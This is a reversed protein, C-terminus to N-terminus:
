PATGAEQNAQGQKSGYHDREILKTYLKALEKPYFDAVRLPQVRPALHVMAVCLRLIEDIRLPPGHDQECRSLMSQPVSAAGALERQSVGADKRWKALKKMKHDEVPNGLVASDSVKLSIDVGPALFL